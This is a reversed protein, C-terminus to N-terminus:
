DDLIIKQMLWGPTKVPIMKIGAMQVGTDGYNFYEYLHIDAGTSSSNTAVGQTNQECSIIVICCSIFILLKRM